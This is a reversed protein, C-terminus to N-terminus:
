GGGGPAGSMMMMQNQMQIQMQMQLQMQLQTQLQQQMQQQMQQNMHQMHMHSQQHQANQMAVMQNQQQVLMRMLMEDPPPKLWQDKQYKTKTNSMFWDFDAAKPSILIKEALQRLFDQCNNRLLSYKGFSSLVTQAIEATQAQSLRTWGILCIYYGDVEPTLLKTLSLDRREQDITYPKINCVYAGDGDGTKGKPEQGASEGEVHERRRLEYKMGHTMLVWHQLRGNLICRSFWVQEGKATDHEQAQRLDAGEKLVKERKEKYRKMRSSNMMKQGRKSQAFEAAKRKARQDREYQLALPTSMFGM